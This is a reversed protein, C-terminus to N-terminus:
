FIGSSVFILWVLLPVIAIMAIAYILLARFFYAKDRPHASAMLLAGSTSMPSVDVVSSAISIATVVGLASFAPNIALPEVLPTIASL